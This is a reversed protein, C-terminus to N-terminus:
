LLHYHSTINFIFINFFLYILITAFSSNLYKLITFSTSLIFIIIVFFFFLIIYFILIINIVYLKFFLHYYSTINFIFINFFLYILITAFPSNLYKLITFATSLRFLIIVVNNFPVLKANFCT